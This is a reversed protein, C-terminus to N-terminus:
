SPSATPSVAPSPSPMTAPCDDAKSFGADKAIDEACFYRGGQSEVVTTQAYGTCSPFRYIKQFDSTVKGKIICDSVPQTHLVNDKGTDVKCQGWLGKGTASSYRAASLLQQGYKMQDSVLPFGFGGELIRENIFIETPPTPTPSSSAAPSASPSPTPSTERAQDAADLQLYVYRVWAGDTARDLVPDKELRVKKGIVSENAKLAEKGFCEVPDGVGPARVGLYRVMQGSDLQITIADVVSTVTAMDPPAANPNKATGAASSTAQKGWHPVPLVNFAMLAAVVLLVLLIGNVWAYRIRIKM